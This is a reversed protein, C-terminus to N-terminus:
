SPEVVALLIPAPNPCRSCTLAFLWTGEGEFGSFTSTGDSLTALDVSTTGDVTGRYLRTAAIEIDLFTAEIDALSKGEYFGLLAGDIDGLDAANGFGDVTLGSWDFTWPGALCPRLPAQTELEVTFDLLDCGGPIDVELNTSTPDPALFALMRAGVGPEDGTTLTLLYTGGDVTYEDALDVQTGFFTFESLAACTEGDTTPRELYGTVASQNLQNEALSAEVDDQTLSGFRALGLNDIDVAPDIPHCQLDETTQDWCITIDSGTAGLTPGDMTTFSPIDLRGSYSFNNTDGISIPGETCEAPAASDDKAGPCASLLLLLM